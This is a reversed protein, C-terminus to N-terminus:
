RHGSDSYAPPIADVSLQANERALREVELRLQEVQLQPDPGPQQPTASEPGRLVPVPISSVPAGKEDSSRIPVRFPQQTVSSPSLIGPRGKTESTVPSTNSDQTPSAFDEWYFPRAAFDLTLVRRCTTHVFRCVPTPTRTGDDNNEEGSGSSSASAYDLQLLVVWSGM